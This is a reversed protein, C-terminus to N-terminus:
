GSGLKVPEDYVVETGALFDPLGRRREDFLVPVYGAFMPIVAIWTGVARLLARAFSPRRGDPRRVRLHLLHMGPTRGAGHWFLVLYAVAIVYSGIAGLTAALWTPRLTGFVSSFLAALAALGVIIALIAAVDITFAAARTAVGAFPPRATWHARRVVQEIRDDFGVAEERIGDFLEEALGATQETIADRVERSAVVERIARRMEESKVVRDVLQGTRDSALASELAQDLAGSDAMETAMRELVRHKAISHALEEPLDGALARDILRSLEPVLHEDAATELPGRSARAAVRAPFFALRGAAGFRSRRGGHEAV